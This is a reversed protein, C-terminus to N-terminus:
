TLFSFGWSSGLTVSGELPFIPSPLSWAAWARGVGHSGTSLDTPAWTLHGSLGYIPMPQSSLVDSRGVSVFSLCVLLPWVRLGPVEARGAQGDTFHPDTGPVFGRKLNM